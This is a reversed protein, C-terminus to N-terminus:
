YDIIELTKLKEDLKNSKPNRIWYEVMQCSLIFTILMNDRYGIGDHSRKKYKNILRNIIKKDFIGYDEILNESLFYSAQDSLQRNQFFSELDPSIYPRKPRNIISSPIEKKFAECLLHKQSFGNLKFKDKYYFVKEVIRHDLFPYRGEVGHALSMRDGQSSLLYGSLLTKMELFQNKQLSTWSYFNDPLFSKIKQIIKEKDILFQYDKNFYNSIVKNNHIRINLSTLENNLEDLFGEYFMRILGFQKTEKYHKLHPYLQKILLPRLKSKPFRSWFELLKIEKFSDYGFLIEDAGEGTLVVKIGSSNVNESLLFLPVGATRFVPREFHYVAELFNNNIDKQEIKLSFNDSNIHDVMKKQYVSEDFENDAFSV